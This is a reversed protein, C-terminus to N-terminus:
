DGGAPTGGPGGDGRQVEPDSSLRGAPANIFDDVISNKEDLRTKALIEAQQKNHKELGDVLREGLKVLAPLARLFAMVEGAM